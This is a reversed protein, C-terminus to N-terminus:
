WESYSWQQNMGGLCAWQVVPAGSRHSYAFVDLCKTPYISKTGLTHRPQLSFRLKDKAWGVRWQQNLHGAQCRRTTVKAYDARSSGEVELCHGNWASVITFYGDAKPGVVEQLHWLQHNDTEWCNLQYASDGPNGSAALCMPWRLSSNSSTLLGWYSRHDASAPASMGGVITLAALAIVTLLRTSRRGLRWFLITMREGEPHPDM